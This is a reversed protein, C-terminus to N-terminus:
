VQIASELESSASTSASRRRGPTPAFDAERM